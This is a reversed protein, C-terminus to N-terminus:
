WLELGLLLAFALGVTLVYDDGILLGPLETEEVDPLFVEIGIFGPGFEELDFFAHDVKVDKLLHGGAVIRDVLLGYDIGKFRPAVVVILFALLGALGALVDCM